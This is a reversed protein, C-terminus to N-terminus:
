PAVTFWRMREARPRPSGADMTEVRMREVHTDFFLAHIGGPHRDDNAVRPFSARPLQTAFFLDHLQVTNTPLERHAETLYIVRSTDMRNRTLSAFIRRETPDAGQPMPGAGQPGPEDNYPYPQLFANVVFDLRQGEVPFDPCQFADFGGLIKLFAPEQSSSTSFTQPQNMNSGQLTPILASAFHMSGGVQESEGLPVVDDYAHAYCYMAQGLTRLHSECKVARGSRRAGSLAPLLVSLLLSVIAIVVLLEILTFASRDTSRFPTPPM